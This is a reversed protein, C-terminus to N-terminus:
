TAHQKRHGGGALDHGLEPLVLRLDEHELHTTSHGELDTTKEPGGERM